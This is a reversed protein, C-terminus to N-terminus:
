AHLAPVQYGLDDLIETRTMKKFKGDATSIDLPFSVRPFISTFLPCPAPPNIFIKDDSLVVRCSAFSPINDVFDGIYSTKKTPNTFKGTVIAGNLWIGDITCGNKFTYKGNSGRNYPYKRNHCKGSYFDGENKGIYKFIGKTLRACKSSIDKPATWFGTIAVYLTTLTGQGLMKFNEMYGDYKRGDKFDVNGNFKSCKPGLFVGNYVDGDCEMRGYYPSGNIISGTFIGCSTTIPKNQMEHSIDIGFRKVVVTSDGVSLTTDIVENKLIGDMQILIKTKEEMPLAQLFKNAASEMEALFTDVRALMPLPIKGLANACNVMNISHTVMNIVNYSDSIGVAKRLQAFKTFREIFAFNDEIDLSAAQAKKTNLVDDAHIRTAIDETMVENQETETGEMYGLHDQDAYKIAEETLQNVNQNTNDWIGYACASWDDLEISTPDNPNICVLGSTIDIFVVYNGIEENYLTKPFFIPDRIVRTSFNITASIKPETSM